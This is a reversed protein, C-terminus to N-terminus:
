ASVPMGREALYERYLEVAEDITPVALVPRERRIVLYETIPASPLFDCGLCAQYAAELPISVKGYRRTYEDLLARARALIFAYHERSRGAWRVIQSHQHTPKYPADQGHLHRVTSAIQLAEKSLWTLHQRHALAACVTPTTHRIYVQM